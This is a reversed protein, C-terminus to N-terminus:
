FCFGSDVVSDLCPFRHRFYVIAIGNESRVDPNQKTDLYGSNMAFQEVLLWSGEDQDKGAEGGIHM